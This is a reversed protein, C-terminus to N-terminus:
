VCTYTHIYTHKNDPILGLIMKPMLYSGQWLTVNGATVYIIIFAIKM